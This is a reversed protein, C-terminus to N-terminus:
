TGFGDGGDGAAADGSSGGLATSTLMFIRMISGSGGSMFTKLM